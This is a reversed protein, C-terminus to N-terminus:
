SFFNNPTETDERKNEGMKSDSCEARFDSEIKQAMSRLERKARKMARDHMDYERQLEEFKKKRNKKEEAKEIEAELEAAAQLVHQNYLLTLRECWGEPIVANAANYATFNTSLMQRVGRAITSRIVLRAVMSGIIPTDFIGHNGFSSTVRSIGSDNHSWLLLEIHDLQFLRRDGVPIHHVGLTKLVRAVETGWDNLNDARFDLRPVKELLANVTDVIYFGTAAM